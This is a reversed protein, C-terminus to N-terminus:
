ELIITTTSHFFASWFTVEVISAVLINSAQTVDQAPRDAPLPNHEHV